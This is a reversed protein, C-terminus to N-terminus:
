NSLCTGEKQLGSALNEKSSANRGTSSLSKKWEKRDDSVGRDGKGGGGSKEESKGKVRAAKSGSVGRKKKKHLSNTGRKCVGGGGGNWVVPCRRRKGGMFYISRKEKETVAEGARCGKGSLHNGCPGKKKGEMRYGKEGLYDRAELADGGWILHSGGAGSLLRAIGGGGEGGGITM